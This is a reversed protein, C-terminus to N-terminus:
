ESVRVSLNAPREKPVKVAELRVKKVEQEASDVFSVTFDYTGPSLRIRVIQFNSPLTEWSRTDAKSIAFFSMRVLVEALLNDTQLAIVEQAGKRIAEKFKM